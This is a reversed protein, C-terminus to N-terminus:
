HQRLQGDRNTQTIQGSHVDLATLWGSGYCYTDICVLHGLDLVDGSMQPTHGVVAKKGSTHPLPVRMTLHTWLLTDEQQQDLPLDHDYNAHVFFHTETEFFLRCRRMFDIHEPPIQSPDGGYSDMTQQGGYSLWPVLWQLSELSRLLMVEHNGLLPILVCQRDLELIRQVVQRSDSGRDIYDGLLILQDDATPALADLLAQFALACGHIDGIAITRPPM